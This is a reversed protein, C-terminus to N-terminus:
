FVTKQQLYILHFIDSFLNEIKKFSIAISNKNRLNTKAMNISAFESFEAFERNRKSENKEKIINMFVNNLIADLFLPFNDDNIKAFFENSDIIYKQGITINLGLEIYKYSKEKSIDIFLTKAKNKENNKIMLEPSDYKWNMQHKNYDFEELNEENNLWKEKLRKLIFIKMILSKNTKKNLVKYNIENFNHDQHKTFNITVYKELYIKIYTIVYLRLMFPYLVVDEEKEDEQLYILNPNNNNKNILNKNIDLNEWIEYAKLFYLFASGNIIDSNFDEQTLSKALFEFYKGINIEFILIISQMLYSRDNDLDKVSIYEQIKEILKNEKKTFNGFNEIDVYKVEEYYFPTLDYEDQYNFYFYYQIFKKANVLISNRSILLDAINERMEENISSKYKLILFDILFQYYRNFIEPDNTSNKVVIIKITESILNFTKILNNNLKEYNPFKILNKEEELLAVLEKYFKSVNEKKEQLILNNILDIIEIKEISKVKLILSFNMEVLSYKIGKIENLFDFVQQNDLLDLNSIKDLAFSIIANSIRYHGQNVIESYKLYQELPYSNQEIIKELNNLYNPDFTRYINFIEIYKQIYITNSLLFSIYKSFNELSYEIRRFEIKIIFKLIEIIENITLSDYKKNGQMNDKNDLESSLNNTKYFLLFDEFFNTYIKSKLIPNKYNYFLYDMNENTKLLNLFEFEFKMKIENFDIVYDYYEEDNEFFHYRIEEEKQTISLLNEELIKLTDKCFISKRLENEIFKDIEKNINTLVKHNNIIGIDKYYNAKELLFEYYGIEDAQNLFIELTQEINFEFIKLFSIILTESHDSNINDNMIIKIQDKDSNSKILKEDIFKFIEQAMLFNKSNLNIFIDGANIKKHNKSLDILVIKSLSKWSQDLCFLIDHDKEILSFFLLFIRKDFKWDLMALILDFRKKDIHYYEKYLRLQKFINFVFEYNSLDLSSILEFKEQLFLYNFVFFLKKDNGPQYYYNKYQFQSILDNIVCNLIENNKITAFEFYNLRLKDLKEYVENVDHDPLYNMILKLFLIKDETSDDYLINELLFYCCNQTIEKSALSSWYENQSKLCNKLITCYQFLPSTAKIKPPDRYDGKSFSKFKVDFYINFRDSQFKKKESEYTINKDTKIKFKINNSFSKFNEFKLFYTRSTYLYDDLFIDYKENFILQHLYFSDFIYGYENSEISLTYLHIEDSKFTLNILFSTSNNKM